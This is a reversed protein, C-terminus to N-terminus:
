GVIIFDKHSQRLAFPFFDFLCRICDPFAKIGVNDARDPASHLSFFLRMCMEVQFSFSERSLLRRAHTSKKHRAM